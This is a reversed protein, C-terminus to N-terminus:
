RRKRWGLAIAATGLGVIGLTSPEPVESPGSPGVSISFPVLLEETGLYCSVECDEPNISSFLEIQVLIQGSNIGGEVALPDITYSGLGATAFLDFSQIWNPAGPPLFFDLPGGQLAIRDSYWGLSSNTENILTSGVVTMWRDPDATLTFGWGVTEGPSGVLNPTDLTLTAANAVALGALLLIITRITKM